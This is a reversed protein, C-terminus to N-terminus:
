KTEKRLIFRPFKAPNKELCIGPAMELWKRGSKRDTDNVAFNWSIIYGPVPASKLPTLKWPIQIRYRTIKEEALRTIEANFDLDSKGSYIAKCVGNDTLAACIEMSNEDYYDPVNGPSLRFALQLSDQAWLGSKDCSNRHDDDRVDARFLLGEENWSFWATCSLDEPGNWEKQMDAPGIASITNLQLPSSEEGYVASKMQLSITETQVTDPTRLTLVADGSFPPAPFRLGIRIEKPSGTMQFKMGTAAAANRFALGPPLELNAEVPLERGTHNRLILQLGDPTLTSSELKLPKALSLRAAALAASGDAGDLFVPLANVEMVPHAKIASGDGRRIRIGAPWNATLKVTEGTAWLVHLKRSDNKFELCRVAEGIPIERSFEMNELMRILFAYAALAPKSTLDPRFFGYESEHYAPNDGSYPMYWVFKEVGAALGLLAARQLYAAQEQETVGMADSSTPWGLESIWLARGPAIRTLLERIKSMHEFFRNSDPSRPRSYPHMGLVDFPMEGKLPALNELTYTRLEEEFPHGNYVVTSEPQIEKIIRYADRMILGFEEKTGSWSYQPENWLDWFFIDNRYHTVTRRVYDLFRERDTGKEGSLTLWQPNKGLIALILIGNKRSLAAIKDFSEFNWEGPQPELDKWSIDLRSMTIGLKRFIPYEETRGHGNVAWRGNRDFGSNKHFFTKLLGTSANGYVAGNESKLAVQFRYYGDGPLKLCLRQSVSDMQCSGSNILEGTIDAMEWEARLPEEPLDPVALTITVESQESIQYGGWDTILRITAATSPLILTVALLFFCVIKCM